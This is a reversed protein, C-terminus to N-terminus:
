FSARVGLGWTGITEDGLQTSDYSATIGWTQNINYQGGVVVGFEGDEDGGLDTYYGKISGEFKPALQGRFGAAVRYGNESASGLTGADVGVDVYGIEALFDAKDSLGHRWGLSVTTEDLSVGDKSVDRYSAAGYWSENFAVSGKVAYGDMTVDLFDSSIYNAEIYNYNLEGAQASLPLVAALALAILSRKM